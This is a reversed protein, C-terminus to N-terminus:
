RVKGNLARTYFSEYQSVVEDQGFIIRGIAARVKVLREATAELDSIIQRDAENISPM